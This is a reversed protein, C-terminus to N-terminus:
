EEVYSVDHVDKLIVFSNKKNDIIGEKRLRGIEASLGSREVQLYDALEQRDFPITFSSSNNKKAQMMLFALLKDRTTRMSLINLKQHFLINKAAVIGLLNITLQSHFGCGGRCPQVIRAWDLFLVECDETALVSVPMREARSCAFSEGIMESPQVDTLIARNGFYDVQEIQASGSLLIGIDGAPDGESLIYERKKFLVVKAGLCSLMQTYDAEDIKDFLPCEKLIKIYKKM